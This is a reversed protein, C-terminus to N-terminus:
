SNAINACTNKLRPKKLIMDHIENDNGETSNKNVTKFINVSYKHIQTLM